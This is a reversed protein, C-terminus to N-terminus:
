DISFAFLLEKYYAFITFYVANLNSYFSGLAQQCKGALLGQRRMGNLHFRQQLVQPFQHAVGQRDGQSQLNFRLGRCPGCPYVDALQFVRNDVQHHVGAIRHFPLAADNFNM